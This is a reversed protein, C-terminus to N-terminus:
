RSSGRRAKEAEQVNRLGEEFGELFRRFGDIAAARFAEAVKGGDIEVITEGRLVRAGARSAEVGVSAAAAGMAAKAVKRVVPRRAGKLAQRATKRVQKPLKVGAVRKPIKVKAM